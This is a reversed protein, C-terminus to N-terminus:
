PLYLLPLLCKNRVCSFKIDLKGPWILKSYFIFRPINFTPSLYLNNKEKNRKRKQLRYCNGTIFQLHLTNYNNTHAFYFFFVLFFSSDQYCGYKMKHRCYIIVFPYFHLVFVNGFRAYTKVSLNVQWRKSWDLSSQSQHTVLSLAFGKHIKSLM